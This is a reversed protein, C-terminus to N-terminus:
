FLPFFWSPFLAWGLEFSDESCGEECSMLGFGQWAEENGCIGSELM